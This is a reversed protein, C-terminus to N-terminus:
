ILDLHFKCIRGGEPDHVELVVRDSVPFKSLDASIRFIREDYRMEQPVGIMEVSSPEVVTQELGHFVVIRFKLGLLYQNQDDVTAGVPFPSLDAFHGRFTATVRFNVQAPFRKVQKGDESFLEDHREITQRQMGEFQASDASAMLTMTGKWKANRLEYADAGLPILSHFRGTSTQGAFSTMSLLLVIVGSRIAKPGLIM